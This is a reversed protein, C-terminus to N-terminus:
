AIVPVQTEVLDPNVVPPRPVAAAEREAAVVWEQFLSVEMTLDAGPKGWEEPGVQVAACFDRFRPHQLMQQSAMKAADEAATEQNLWALFDSQDSFVREIYTFVEQCLFFFWAHM